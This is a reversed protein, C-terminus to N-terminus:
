REVPVHRQIRSQISDKKEGNNIILIKETKEFKPM